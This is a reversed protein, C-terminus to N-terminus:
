SRYCPISMVNFWTFQRDLEYSQHIYHWLHSRFPIAIVSQVLIGGWSARITKAIGVNSVLYAAVGPAWLLGSMKVSAGLSFFLLSATFRRKLLFLVGVYSFLTQFPDNFLGNQFVNRARLTFLFFLCDLQPWPSVIRYIRHIIQRWWGCRWLLFDVFTHM